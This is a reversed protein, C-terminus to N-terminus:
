NRELDTFESRNFICCRIEIRLFFKVIRYNRDMGSTCNALFKGFRIFLVCKATLASKSIHALVSKSILLQCM